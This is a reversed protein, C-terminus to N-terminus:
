EDRTLYHAAGDYWEMVSIGLEYAVYKQIRCSNSERWNEALLVMDCMMMGWICRSINEMGEISINWRSGLAKIVPPTEDKEDKDREFAETWNVVTLVNWNDTSKEIEDRKNIIKKLDELKWEGDKCRGCDMVLCVNKVKKEM